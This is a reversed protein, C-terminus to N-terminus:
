RDEGAVLITAVDRGALKGRSDYLAAVFVYPAAPLDKIWDTFLAASAEGELERYGAGGKGTPGGDWTVVLLRNDAHRPVRMEVRVENRTMPLMVQPRVQLTVRKEAGYLTGSMFGLLFCIIFFTFLVMLRMARTEGPTGVCPRYDRLGSHEDRFPIV